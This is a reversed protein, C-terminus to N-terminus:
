HKCVTQGIWDVSVMPFKNPMLDIDKPVCVMTVGYTEPISHQRVRIQQSKVRWMM